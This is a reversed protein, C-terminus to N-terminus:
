LTGAFCVNFFLLVKYHPMGTPQRWMGHHMGTLNSYAILVVRGAVLLMEEHVAQNSTCSSTLNSVNQM